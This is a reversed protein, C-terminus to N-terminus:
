QNKVCRVTMGFSKTGDENSTSTSLYMAHQQSLENISWYFGQTGVHQLIGFASSRGSQAGNWYQEATGSSSLLRGLAEATAPVIASSQTNVEGGLATILDNFDQETPVRWPAPCLVTGFRIVACWSFLDGPQDPNSRCDANYSNGGGAAFSPKNCATTSVAGSWIQTIGNGSITLEEDRNITGLGGAGWGPNFTNCNQMPRTVVHAGSWRSTDSGCINTAVAVFFREQDLPASLPPFYAVSNTGVPTAGEFSPTSNWYWQYTPTPNGTGPMPFVTLLAFEGREGNQSRTQRENNPTNPNIEPASNITIQRSAQVGWCNENSVARFYYVDNRTVIQSTIPEQMSTGGDTTGQWYITGSNGNNAILTVSGCFPSAPPDTTITIATPLANVKLTGTTTKPPCVQNNNVSTITWRYEGSTTPTGVINGASQSIGSPAPTPTWEISLGTAGGGFIHLIGEISEYAQCVTQNLTSEASLRLISDEAWAIASIPIRDTGIPCGDDIVAELWYTTTGIPLHPTQFTTGFHVPQEGGFSYDVTYWRITANPSNPEAHLTVTGEGCRHV